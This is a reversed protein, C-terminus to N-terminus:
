ALGEWEKSAVWKNTTYKDLNFEKRKRQIEANIDRNYKSLTRRPELNGDLTSRLANTLSRALLYDGPVSHVNRTHDRQDKLVALEDDTWGMKDLADVEAPTYRAAVGMTAELDQGYRVQQDHRTWWKLFEYGQKDVGRKEAATLMMCGSGGSASDHRISGDAQVTGPIPAMKWLGRLEPAAASLQNYTGYTIIGIPVDGTRFRNYFDVSRAVGYKSYFEAWQEFAEYAETTDFMTATLTDNYYDTHEGKQFLISQFIDISGSVGPTGSSTEVMGVNLNQGQLTRLMEYFEDWTKPVELNLEAFIDTRYFIMPWSQTEPIAYVGWGKGNNYLFHKWAAETFKADPEDLIMFENEGREKGNLNVLAGRMSLNIIETSPILLAVDPGKGAMTASLLTSGTDVLSLRVNIKTEATFETIMASIIQMQDRGTSVWAEVTGEGGKVQYDTFFSGFFKEVSYVTSNWLGAKGNPIEEDGSIFFFRDIELPQQGFSLLLSSLSEISSKFSALDATIEYSKGAYIGLRDATQYLTSTQSGTKGNVEVIKDAIATIKKQQELFMEKLGPIEDELYYDQYIDPSTGTIVIIKRYIENLELVSQQVTRLVDCLEGASVTLTIEDGPKLWLKLPNEKGGLVQIEWDSDYVFPINVAEAFPIVGNVSLTRYSIMGQNANQRARMAFTYWGEKKVNVKWTIHQGTTSWNSGGITNMLMKTPHTPTTGADQHDTLAYLTSDSKVFPTEAEMEVVGSGSFSTKGKYQAEYEKYSPLESGANVVNSFTLKNIAVAERVLEVRITHTGASLNFYYPDAYMGLENVFSHSTWEFVEEQRPRIHNGQDDELFVKGDVVKDKWIRPLSLTQAEVFPAVGDITVKVSIARGSKVLPYYTPTLNYLGSVPIDVQWEIWENKDTVLNGDKDKVDSELVVGSLGGDTKTEAGAIESTYAGSVDVEVVTDKSVVKKVDYNKEFYEIYSGAVGTAGSPELDVTGGTTDTAGAAAVPMAVLM